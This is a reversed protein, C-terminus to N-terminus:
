QAAPQPMNHVHSLLRAREQKCDSCARALRVHRAIRERRLAREDIATESSRLVVARTVRPGGGLSMEDGPPASPSRAKCASGSWAGATEAAIEVKFEM